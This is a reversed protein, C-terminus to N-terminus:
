VSGAARELQLRRVNVLLALREGPVEEVCGPVGHLLDGDAMTVWHNGGHSPDSKLDIFLSSSQPLNMLMHITMGNCSQFIPTM